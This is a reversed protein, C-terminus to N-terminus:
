EGEATRIRGHDSVHSLSHLFYVFLLECLCEGIGVLTHLKFLDAAVDNSADAFPSRDTKDEGGWLWRSRVLM